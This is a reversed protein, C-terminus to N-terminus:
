LELGVYGKSIMFEKLNIKNYYYDEYKIYYYDGIYKKKTKGNIINSIVSEDINAYVSAERYSNYYNVYNYNKDVIAVPIGRLKYKILSDNELSNNYIQLHEQKLYDIYKDFKEKKRDLFVTANNYIYNYFIYTNSISSINLILAKSGRKDHSLKSKSLNSEKEVYNLIEETGILSVGGIKTEDNFYICGDGDFYGRIFHNILYKPVYKPPQLVLSKAPVCGHKELDHCM